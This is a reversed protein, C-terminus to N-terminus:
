REERGRHLADVIDATSLHDYSPLSAVLAANDATRSVLELQQVVYANLSMHRRAALRELKAKVDDPIDRVHMNVGVARM